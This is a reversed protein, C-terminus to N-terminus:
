EGRRQQQWLMAQFNDAMEAVSAELYESHRLQQQRAQMAAAAAQRGGSSSSTVGAVGNSRMHVQPLIESVNNSNIITLTVNNPDAFTSYLDIKM